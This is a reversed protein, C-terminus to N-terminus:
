PFFNMGQFTPSFTHSEAFFRMEARGELFSVGLRYPGKVTLAMGEGIVNLIRSGEEQFDCGM